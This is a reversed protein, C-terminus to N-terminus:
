RLKMADAHRSTYALFVGGARQYLRSLTQGGPKGDVTLSEARQFNRIAKETKDDFLGDPKGAYHGAKKLLEQLLEVGNPEKQVPVAVPVPAAVPVPEPEKPFSALFVGTAAAIVVLLAALAIRRAGTSEAPDEKLLDTIALAAMRSSIENCEKTYALLLARDCVGNILRPLGGSFRAIRKIAGASFIVPERGEAAIKIRHRIYLQV